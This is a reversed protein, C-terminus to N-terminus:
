RATGVKDALRRDKLQRGGACAHRHVGPVVLLQKARLEGEADFSHSACAKYTRRGRVTRARM